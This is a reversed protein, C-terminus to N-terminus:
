EKLLFTLTEEIYKLYEAITPLEFIKKLPFNYEIEENIRPTLRLAAM